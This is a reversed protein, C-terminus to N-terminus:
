THTGDRRYQGMHVTSTHCLTSKKRMMKEFMAIDDPNENYWIQLPTSVKLEQMVDEPTDDPYDSGLEKKVAKEYNSSLYRLFLFSLMYDRFDDANMAGRLDNAIDWLIKGLRNKEEESM